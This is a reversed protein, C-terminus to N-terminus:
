MRSAIGTMCPSHVTCPRAARDLDLTRAIRIMQSNHVQPGGHCDHLLYARTGPCPERFAVALSHISGHSSEPDILPSFTKVTAPVFRIVRKVRTHFELRDAWWRFRMAHLIGSAALLAWLSALAKAMRSFPGFSPM